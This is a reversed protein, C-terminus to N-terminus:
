VDHNAHPFGTRRGTQASFSMNGLSFYIAEQKKDLIVLITTETISLHGQPLGRAM